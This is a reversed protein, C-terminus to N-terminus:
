WSVYMELMGDEDAFEDIYHKYIELVWDESEEADEELYERSFTIFCGNCVQYHKIVWHWFDQYLLDENLEVDKTGRNKFKGAYDREQYGYKKQLYDRCENYKYYSKTKKEPKNM